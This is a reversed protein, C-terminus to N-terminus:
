ENEVHPGVFFVGMGKPLSIPQAPLKARSFTGKYKEVPINEYTALVLDGPITEGAPLHTSFYDVKLSGNILQELTKIIVPMKVSTSASADGGKLLNMVQEALVYKSTAM